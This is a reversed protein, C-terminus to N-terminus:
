RAIKISNKQGSSIFSVVAIQAKSKSVPITFTNQGSKVSINQKYLIRGDIGTYMIIGEKADSSSINITIDTESLGLVTFSDSSLDFKVPILGVIASKGDFDYQKLQYYNTGTSPNYDDISYSKPSTSNGAGDITRIVEFNKGDTSRSIEFNKNNVEQATQWNLNIGYNNATGTFSTLSIPLVGLDELTVDDLYAIGGDKTFQLKIKPTTNTITFNFTGAVNSSSQTTTSNIVAGNTSGDAVTELASATFTNNDTNVGGSPGAATQIRWNFTVRYTHGQTVAFAAANATTISRPNVAGVGTLRVSYTGSIKNTGEIQADINSEYWAGPWNQVNTNGTGNPTITEFDGNPVPIMQAFSSIYLLCSLFISFYFKKM